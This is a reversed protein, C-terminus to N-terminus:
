KRLRSILSLIHEVLNTLHEAFGDGATKYVPLGPILYSIDSHHGKKIQYDNM